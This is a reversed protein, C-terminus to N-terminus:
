RYGRRAELRRRDRKTPRGGPEAVPAQALRREAVHRERAALSEPTEDYLLAAASAPGRRQAVGRVVVTRAVPGTTVEIEDGPGVERSPKVRRGNVQVRGGTIAEVALPRTKALRAAWLWRDLRVREPTPEVGGDDCARLTHFTSVKTAGCRPQPASSHVDGFCGGGGGLSEWIVVM